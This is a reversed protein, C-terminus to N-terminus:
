PNLVIPIIQLDVVHAEEAPRVDVVTVAIFATQERHADVVQAPNEVARLRVQLRPEDLCPRGVNRLRVIVPQITEKLVVVEVVIVLHPLRTGVHLVREGLEASEELGAHM